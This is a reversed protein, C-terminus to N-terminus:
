LDIDIGAGLVRNTRHFRDTCDVSITQGAVSLDQSYSKDFHEYNTWFYAINVSANKAIKFKAGFGCSYSSTVFSM